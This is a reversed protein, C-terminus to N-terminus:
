IQIFLGIIRWKFRYKFRVLSQRINSSMRINIEHLNTSWTRKKPHSRIKPFSKGRFDLWNNSDKETIKIKWVRLLLIPRYSILTSSIPWIHGYIMHKIHFLSLCLCWHYNNICECASHWCHKGCNVCRHSPLGNEWIRATFSLRKVPFDRHLLSFQLMQNVHM